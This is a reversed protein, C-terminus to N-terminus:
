RAAVEDSSFFKLLKLRECCGNFGTELTDGLSLNEAWPCNELDLWTKRANDDIVRPNPNLYSSWALLLLKRIEDQPLHSPTLQSVVISLLRYISKNSPDEINLKAEPRVHNTEEIHGPTETKHLTHPDGVSSM